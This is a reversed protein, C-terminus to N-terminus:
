LGERIEAATRITDEDRRLPKAEQAAIARYDAAIANVVDVFDEFQGDLITLDSFMQGGAQDRSDITVELEDLVIEGSETRRAYKTIEATFPGRKAAALVVLTGDIQEDLPLLALVAAADAPNPVTNQSMLNGEQNSTIEEGESGTAAPGPADRQERVIVHRNQVMSLAMDEDVFHVVSWGPAGPRSSDIQHETGAEDIWFAATM